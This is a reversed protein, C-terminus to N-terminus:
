RHIKKLSRKFSKGFFKTDPKTDSKTSIDKDWQALRKRFERNVPDNYEKYQNYLKYATLAFLTGIIPWRVKVIFNALKSRKKSKTGSKM